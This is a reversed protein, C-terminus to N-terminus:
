LKTGYNALLFLMLGDSPVGGLPCCLPKTGELDKQMDQMAAQLPQDDNVLVTDMAKSAALGRTCGPTPM